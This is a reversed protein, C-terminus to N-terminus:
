SVQDTYSENDGVDGDSKSNDESDVDWNGPEMDGAEECAFLLRNAAQIYHRRDALVYYEDRVKESHGLHHTATSSDGPLRDEVMNETEALARLVNFSLGKIKTMNGLAKLYRCLNQGLSNGRSNIFLSDTCPAKPGNPRAYKAYLFTAYVDRPNLLVAYEYDGTKISDDITMVVPIFYRRDLCGGELVMSQTPFTSEFKKVAKNLENWAQGFKIRTFNGPRKYNCATCAGILVTNLLFLESKKLKKVPKKADAQSKLSKLIRFVKKWIPGQYFRQYFRAMVNSKGKSKLLLRKRKLDRKKGKQAVHAMTLFGEMRNAFNAPVRDYFRLFKRVAQLSNHFNPITSPQVVHKLVSFFDTCSKPDYAMELTPVKGPEILAMCKLFKGVDLKYLKVTNPKICKVNELWHIFEEPPSIPKADKLEKAISEFAITASKDPVTASELQSPPM